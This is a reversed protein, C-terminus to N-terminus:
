PQAAVYSGTRHFHISLTYIVILWFNDRLCSGLVEPNIHISDIIEKIILSNGNDTKNRCVSRVITEILRDEDANSYPLAASTRETVNLIFDRIVISEFIEETLTKLSVLTFLSFYNSQHYLGLLWDLVMAQHKPNLLRTLEIDTSEVVTNTFQYLEDYSLMNTIPPNRTIM